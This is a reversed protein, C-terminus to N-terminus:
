SGCFLVMAAGTNTKKWKWACVAAVVCRKAGSHNRDPTSGATTYFGSDLLNYGTTAAGGM